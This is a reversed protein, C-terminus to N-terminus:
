PRYRPLPHTGDGNVAAVYLGAPLAAQGVIVMLFAALDHDSRRFMELMSDHDTGSPTPYPEPHTHWDGVFHLGQKHLRGIDRRRTFNDILLGFRWRKDRNYPGTAQVITVTGNSIAAFLQGGAEPDRSGLQRHRAFHDLVADEFVVRQAGDAAFYTIM